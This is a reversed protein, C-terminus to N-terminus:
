NTMSENVYGRLSHTYHELRRLVSGYMVALGSHALREALEPGRAIIHPHRQM